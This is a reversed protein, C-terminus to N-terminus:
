LRRPGLPKEAEGGRWREQRGEATRKKNNETESVSKEPKGQHDMNDKLNM